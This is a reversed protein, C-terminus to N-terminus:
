ASASEISIQANRLCIVGACVCCLLCVCVACVCEACPVCVCRTHLASPPPHVPVRGAASAPEEPIVSSHACAM